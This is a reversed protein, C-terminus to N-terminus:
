IRMIKEKNIKEQKKNRNKKVKGNTMTKEKNNNIKGELKKKINKNDKGSTMNRKNDKNKRRGNNNSEKNSEGLRKNRNSNMKIGRNMIVKKNKGNVKINDIKRITITKQVQNRTIKSAIHTNSKISDQRTM